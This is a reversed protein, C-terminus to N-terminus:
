TGGETVDDPKAPWEFIDINEETLTSPLDRLLQRHALWEERKADNIPFDSLTYKDSEDLKRNRQTRIVELKGEYTYEYAVEYTKVEEDAELFQRYHSNGEDTPIYEGLSSIIITNGDADTKVMYTRPDEIGTM